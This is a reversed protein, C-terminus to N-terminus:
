RETGPASPSSPRPQRRMNPTGTRGRAITHIPLVQRQTVSNLIVAASLYFAFVAAVLAGYGGIALLTTRGGTFANIANFVLAWAFGVLMITLLPNHPLAAVALYAAILAFMLTFIGFVHASGTASGGGPLLHVLSMWQYLSWAAFYTSFITFVSTTLVDGRRFSWMGTLFLGIGGFILAVPIVSAIETQRMGFWGAYATGLTFITTAFAAYGIVRPDVIMMQEQAIVTASDQIPLAQGIGGVPTWVEDNVWNM